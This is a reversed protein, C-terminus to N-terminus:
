RCPELQLGGIVVDFMADATQLAKKISPGRLWRVSSNIMGVIMFAVARDNDFQKFAGIEAGEHIIQRIAADYRKALQRLEDMGPFADSVPSRPLFDEIYVAIYPDHEAISQMLARMVLRLKAPPAADSNAIAEADEVNKTMIDSILDKFCDEKSEFYYYVTARDIGSRDAIDGLSSGAVGKERFVQGAAQFLKARTAQYRKSPKQQASIRRAAIGVETREPSSPPKRSSDTM